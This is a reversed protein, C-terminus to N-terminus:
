AEALEPVASRVPVPRTFLYASGAAVLGAMAFLPLRYDVAAFLAAGLAIAITQPVSTLLDFAASTRGMLATPTRRQLLTSSGVIVWPLSVGLLASGALTVATSPVALLLYACTLSALGAGIVRVEGIRRILPAACIGSAIAGIGQVSVLIALFGPARHLGESVVVFYGTESFGYTIVALVGAISAQRLAATQRIHRAGAAAESLRHQRDRAPEGREGREGREERTRLALLAAAALVFTAADGVILPVPGVAVLLGAGILPTILRMGQGVTQLVGNAEALLGEPVLVQLLATQAPALIASSLGYGVMVLYILWLQGQGRVLLLLLILAGSALNVAILLPRRRLRDALVGGFPGALSGVAVMFDALGAESSSGTLMKVWIGVALFLALDGFASLLQGAIYLRADRHAFLKRM